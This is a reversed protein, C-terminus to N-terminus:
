DGDIKVVRQLFPDLIHTQDGKLIWFSTVDSPNVCTASGPLFGIPLAQIFRFVIFLTSEELCTDIANINSRIFIIRDRQGTEELFPGPSNTV